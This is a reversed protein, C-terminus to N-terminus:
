IIKETKVRGRSFSMRKMVLRTEGRSVYKARRFTARLVSRLVSMEKNTKNLPTKGLKRAVNTAIPLALISVSTRRDIPAGTPICVIRRALNSPVSNASRVRRRGLKTASSNCDTGPM